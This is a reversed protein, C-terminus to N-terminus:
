PFYLGFGYSFVVVTTLTATVATAAAILVSRGLDFGTEDKLFWAATLIAAFLFGITSVVFGLPQLLLIYLALLAVITAVAAIQRSGLRTAGAATKVARLDQILVGFLAVIALACIAAPFDAPGILSIGGGQPLLTSRWLGFGAAALLFIDFAIRGNLTKM